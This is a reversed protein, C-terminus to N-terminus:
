LSLRGLAMTLGSPNNLHFIGIFGDPISGAVKRGGLETGWGVAGRTEWTAM